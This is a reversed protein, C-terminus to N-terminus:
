GGARSASRAPGPFFAVLFGVGKGKHLLLKGLVFHNSPLAIPSSAARAIAPVTPAPM